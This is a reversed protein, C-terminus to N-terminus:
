EDERKSERAAEVVAKVIQMVTTDFYLDPRGNQICIRKIVSKYPVTSMIDNSNQNNMDM